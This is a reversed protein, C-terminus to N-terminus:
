FRINVFFLVTCLTETDSDASTVPSHHQPWCKRSLLKILFLIDFGGEGM